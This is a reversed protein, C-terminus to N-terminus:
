GPLRWYIRVSTMARVPDGSASLAPEYRGRQVLIKCTTSNLLPSASREVLVCESIRGDVGVVLRALVSGTIRARVAEYPYDRASFWEVPGNIPKPGHRLSQIVEPDFGWERLADAECARLSAVARAANPIPVAARKEGGRGVKVQSSVPLNKLFQEDLNTIAIGRTGRFLIPMAYQSVRFGSPDLDIDVHGSERFTKAKWSPDFLWLESQGAGPVTRVMLTAPAPGGTERILSCRQEGWDVVWRAKAPAPPAAAAAALALLSFAWSMM